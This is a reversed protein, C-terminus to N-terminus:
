GGHTAAHVALLDARKRDGRAAYRRALLTAADANNPEGALFDAVLQEAAAPNGTAELAAAMRKALPWPRRIAAAKHYLALAAKPDGAAYAADGDLAM